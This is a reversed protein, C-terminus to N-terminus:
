LMAANSRSFVIDSEEEVPTTLRVPRQRQRPALHSAISFDKDLYYAYFGADGFVRIVDGASKGQQALPDPHIEVIVELDTRGSALVEAMGRAASWEAGEVDIKILRARRSEVERLIRGLPEAEVLAEFEMQIGDQEAFLGTMGINHEPGRFLKVLGKADSAAVNVARVNSRHNRGLNQQLLRFITPSAEIAVVLGGPGILSSALLSFYGINAGVDVFVDGPALRSKIWHTLNPEFIGFYYIYQQITDQTNGALRSGFVTPAVFEHSHWAFYPDIVRTWFTDKGRVIPGYRMYARLLPVLLRRLSRTESVKFIVDDFM